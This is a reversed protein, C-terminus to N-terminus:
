RARRDVRARTSKTKYANLATGGKLVLRDRLFTHNRLGELLDLLRIVKELMEPRFGTKSSEAMLREKSLNVCAGGGM